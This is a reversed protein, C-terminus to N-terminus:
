EDIILGEFKDTYHTNNHFNIFSDKNGWIKFITDLDILWDNEDIIEQYSTYPYTDFAKVLGHKRANHHLYYQMYKFKEDPDYHSHKFPRKFVGGRRGLSKNYAKSYSIFFRQHQSIILDHIAEEDSHHDWYTKIGISQEDISITQIYDLIESKNRM